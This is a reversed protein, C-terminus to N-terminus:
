LNDSVTVRAAAADVAAERSEHMDRAQAQREERLLAGWGIALLAGAMLPTGILWMVRGATVQDSLAEARGLAEAYSGYVVDPAIKLGIGVIAMAPMAFLVLLMRTIASPARPLPQVALVPIWFLVGSWFYLAHELAHLLPSELAAEYLGPAHSGVLVASFAFLGTLPATLVRAPRSALAHRLERRPTRPLAALALRVPAGALVLPPAILTLLMHQVMHTTLREDSGAGLPGLAAALVALGLIFALTHRRRWRPARHVGALYLVGFLAIIVVAVTLHAM